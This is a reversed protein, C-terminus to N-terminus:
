WLDGNRPYSWDSNSEIVGWMLVSQWSYYMWATVGYGATYSSAQIAGSTTTDYSFANCNWRQFKYGCNTETKTDWNHRVATAWVNKDEMTIWNDWIKFSILGLSENYFVVQWLYYDNVLVERTSDPVAPTDKLLRLFALNRTDQLTVPNYPEDNRFYRWGYSVLTSSGTDDCWCYQPIFTRRCMEPREDLRHGRYFVDQALHVLSRIEDGSPIHFWEKPRKTPPIIFLENNSPYSWDWSSLVFTNSEYKNLARHWATNVTTSSTQPIQWAVFWKYNWRQYYKWCNSETLADWYNYVSTAGLNKDQIVIVWTASIVYIAWKDAELHVGYDRRRPSSLEDWWYDRFCRIPLWVSKLTNWISQNEWSVLHLSDAYSNNYSEISWYDVSQGRWTLAWTTNSLHWALPLHLQEVYDEATTYGLSTMIEVLREREDTNPIHFNDPIVPPIAYPRIQVWNSMVKEVEIWNIIRKQLDKWNIKIPM